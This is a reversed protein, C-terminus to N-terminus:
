GCRSEQCKKNTKQSNDKIKLVVIERVKLKIVGWLKDHDECIPSIGCNKISDSVHPVPYAPPAMKSIISIFHKYTIPTKGMNKEIISDLDYLTHSKETVVQVGMVKCMNKINHDLVKSFPEPDENFSM